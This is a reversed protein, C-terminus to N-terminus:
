TPPPPLTLRRTHPTRVWSGQDRVRTLAQLIIPIWMLLYLWLTPLTRLYRGLAWRPRHQRHSLDYILPALLLLNVQQLLALAPWLLLFPQWWSFGYQVFTHYATWGGWAYGPLLVLLNVIMQAPSVLYLLMDFYRLQRTRLLERLVALGYTKCCWWHGRMWRERQRYSVKLSLPKEDYIIAWENWHVREGDLVLQTTLELDEVMSQPNWGLRKLTQSEVVFGTGALGCSLGRRFRPWQWFRGASWYAVAYISTLANDDPNKTDAFGQVAKVDPHAAFHNNMERFFQPHIVNDADFMAMGVYREWWRIGLPGELHGLLDKIAWTKGRKDTNFREFVQFGAERVLKATRDTCNDAVIFVDLATSPYDQQQLSHLLDAIVEEENHAAIVAFFRRDHTARPLRPPKVWGFSGIVSLYFSNVNVAVAVLVLAVLGLHAWSSDFQWVAPNFFLYLDKLGLQM